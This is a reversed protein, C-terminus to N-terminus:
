PKFVGDFSAQPKFGQADVSHPAQNLEETLSNKRPVGDVSSGAQVLVPILGGTWSQRRAVGATKSLLM